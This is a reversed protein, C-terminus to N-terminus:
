IGKPHPIPPSLHYLIHFADRHPFLFLERRLSYFYSTPLCAQKLDAPLAMLEAIFSFLIQGHPGELKLKLGLPSFSLWYAWEDLHLFHGKPPLLCAQLSNFSSTCSEAQTPPLWFAFFSINHARCGKREEFPAWTSLLGSAFTASKLLIQGDPFFLPSCIGEFM